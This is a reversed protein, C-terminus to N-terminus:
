AAKARNTLLTSALKKVDQAALCTPSFDLLPTQRRIAKAVAPDRRIIGALPPAAGLFAKSARALANYIQRGSDATEAMNVVIEFSPPRKTKSALKIFAYGDTLSTPDETVILLCRGAASALRLQTTEIGAGIDILRADHHASVRAFDGILRAIETSPQNRFINAGSAGPIIDFGAETRAVLGDLSSASSSWMSLDRTPAMGLQIDVNALGIDGDLLIARRGNNAIEHAITVALWTKGVGGKGSAIALFETPRSM